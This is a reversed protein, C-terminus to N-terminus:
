RKARAAEPANREDADGGRASSRPFCAIVTTNAASRSTVNARSRQSMVSDALSLWSAPSVSVPCHPPTFMLPLNHSLLRKYCGTCTSGAPKVMMHETFLSAEMPNSTHGPQPPTCHVASFEVTEQNVNLQQPLWLHSGQSSKTM